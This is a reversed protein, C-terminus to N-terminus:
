ACADDDEFHTRRVFASVLRDTKQKSRALNRIIQSFSHGKCRQHLFYIAHKGCSSSRDSQWQRQTYHVHAFRALFRRIHTSPPPWEGLSDHYDVESGSQVYIAVWHSGFSGSPDMNVVMHHPYRNHLLPIRDAPFCGLYAQRTIPSRWLVKNIQRTDM